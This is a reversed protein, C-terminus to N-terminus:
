VTWVNKLHRIRWGKSIAMIDFRLDGQHSTRVAFTSLARAIRQQQRPRLAHLADDINNRNKVEIAAILNGKKVIIDIEGVPCRFRMALVRYGCLRLWMACIWEARRGAREAQKRGHQTDPRANRVPSM